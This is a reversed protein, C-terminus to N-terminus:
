DSADFAGELYRLRWCRRGERGRDEVSWAAVDFRVRSAGRGHEHLWAIAGRVLRARKAADVALEPEGFRLCRRTKVEVFVLLDGRQAVLDLEVGGARVNRDIIQYGERALHRATRDEGEDGLLRREVYRRSPM